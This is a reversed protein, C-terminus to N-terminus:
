AVAELAISKVLEPFQGLGEAEGRVGADSHGKGSSSLSGIGAMSNFFIFFFAMDAAVMKSVRHKRKHYQCALTFAM